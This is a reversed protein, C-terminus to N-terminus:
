DWNRCMRDAVKLELNVLDGIKKLDSSTLVSITSEIFIVGNCSDDVRFGRANLAAVFGEISFVDCGDVNVVVKRGSVLVYDYQNQPTAADNLTPRDDVVPEMIPLLPTVVESRITAVNEDVESSHPSVVDSWVWRWSYDDMVSFDLGLSVSFGSPFEVYLIRDRASLTFGKRGRLCDAVLDVSRRGYKAVLENKGPLKRLKEARGLSEAM